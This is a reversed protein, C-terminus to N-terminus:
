IDITSEKWEDNILVYRKLCNMCICCKVNNNKEYIESNKVEYYYWKHWGVLCRLKKM